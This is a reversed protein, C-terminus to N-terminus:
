QKSHFGLVHGLVWGIQFIQTLVWLWHCVCSDLRRGEITNKLSAKTPKHSQVKQAVKPSTTSTKISHRRNPGQHTHATHSHCLHLLVSFILQNEWPFNFFFTWTDLPTFTWQTGYIAHCIWPGEIVLHSEHQQTKNINIKSTVFTEVM